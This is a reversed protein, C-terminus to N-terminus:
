KSFKVPTFNLCDKSKGRRVYWGTSNHTFWDAHKATYITGKYYTVVMVAGGALLHARVEECKQAHTLQTM